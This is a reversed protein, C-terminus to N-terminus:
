PLWIRCCLKCRLRFIVGCFCMKPNEISQILSQLIVDINRSLKICFFDIEIWKGFGM